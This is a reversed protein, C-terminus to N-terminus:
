LLGAARLEAGIERTFILAGAGNLHSNDKFMADQGSMHSESKYYLPLGLQKALDEIGKKIESDDRTSLINQHFPPSYLVIQCDYQASLEVIKNLYDLDSQHPEFVPKRLEMTDFKQVVDFLLESGKTSDLAAMDLGKNRNAFTQYIPYRDNFEVYKLFPAIKWLWYKTAPIEDKYVESVWAESFRPLFAYDQFPYTYSSDSTLASYDLNLLLTKSSNGAEFFQRLILYNQALSSGSTAVNVGKINLDKELTPVHIINLARSSGLVVIDLQQDKQQFIWSARHDLSRNKFDSFQADFVYGLVQFLVILVLSFLGSRIIYHKM